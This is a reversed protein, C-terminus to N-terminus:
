RQDNLLQQSVSMNQQQIPNIGYVQKFSQSFSSNNEYGVKYFVEGPNQNQLLLSKALEMKQQLFYRSPTKNYIKIFKRKFSSVSTHCLFALEELTLNNTINLEVAKRIEFDSYEQRNKTQFSLISNSLSLESSNAGGKFGIHIPTKSQSKVEKTIFATGILLITM